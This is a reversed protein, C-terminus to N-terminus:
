EAEAVLRCKEERPYDERGEESGWGGRRDGTWVLHPVPGPSQPTPCSPLTGSVRGSAKGKGPSGEAAGELLCLWTHLAPCCPRQLHLALQCSGVGSPARSAREPPCRQFCHSLPSKCETQTVAWSRPLGWGPSFKGGAAQNEPRQWLCGVPGLRWVPAGLGGPGAPEARRRQTSHASAPPPPAGGRRVM